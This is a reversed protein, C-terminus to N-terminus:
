ASLRPAFTWGRNALFMGVTVAPVAVAYAAFREVGAGSVLLWLLASTTGLGALQVALYRARARSSDPSAFTWRRNLVYGNVAGAAFGAGGALWAPVGSVVLVSYIALSLATNGTGVALFRAFQAAEARRSRRPRAPATM